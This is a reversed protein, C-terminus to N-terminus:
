IKSGRELKSKVFGFIANQGKGVIGFQTPPALLFAHPAGEIFEVKTEAGAVAWKFSMLVMDDVAADQTGVLFLAPPLKGRKTKEVRVEEKVSGPYQFVPHYIPSIEKIRRAESPYNPLYASHFHHISESDLLLPNTWTRASPLGSLEFIGYILCTGLLTFSPRTDM